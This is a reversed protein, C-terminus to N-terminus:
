INVMRNCLKHKEVKRRRSVHILFVDDDALPTFNSM